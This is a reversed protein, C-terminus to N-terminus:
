KWLFNMYLANQKEWDAECHKGNRQFYHYTQIGNNQLEKEFKYVSRAERTDFEPNGGYAAKGAELEGWSIYIKTDPYFRNQLSNRYHKLNWFVSSSIVAAKSFVDNYKLVGYMSMIGGMSSGAIATAERHGYTRFTADIYPKIEDIIWQFTQDGIGNITKGFMRKMYPCYEYLREDGRHSCEIGVIIIKKDWNDLFSELGWSKGYTAMDDHYLNHGDFMYMVPYRENSQDYDNPLYIHLKRIDDSPWYYKDQYVIM